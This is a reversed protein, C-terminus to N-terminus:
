RVYSSKPKYSRRGSNPKAHAHLDKSAEARRLNAIAYPSVKTKATIPVNAISSTSGAKQEAKEDQASAVALAPLLILIGAIWGSLSKLKACGHTSPYALMRRQYFVADCFLYEPKLM